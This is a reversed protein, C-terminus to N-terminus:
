PATTQRRPYRPRPPRMLLQFIMIATPVAGRGTVIVVPFVANVVRVGAARAIRGLWTVVIHNETTAVTRVGHSCHDTIITAIVAGAHRRLRFPDSAAVHVLADPSRNGTIQLAHLKEEGRGFHHFREQDM